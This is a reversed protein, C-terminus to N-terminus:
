IFKNVIRTVEDDMNINKDLYAQYVDADANIKDLITQKNMPAGDEIIGKTKNGFVIKCKRLHVMVCTAVTASEPNLWFSSDADHLPRNLVNRLSWAMYQPVLDNGYNPPLNPIATIRTWKSFDYGFINKYNPTVDGCTDIVVVTKSCDTYDLSQLNSKIQSIADQMQMGTRCYKDVGEIVYTWGKAEVQAKLKESFTTKGAGVAGKMSILVGTSANKTASTNVNGSFSTSSSSSSSANLNITSKYGADFPNKFGDPFIKESSTIRPGVPEFDDKLETYCVPCLIHPQELLTNYGINSLVFIPHCQPTSDGHPKIRWGGEASCDEMTVICTYDLSM